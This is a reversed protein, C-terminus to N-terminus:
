RMCGNGFGVVRRGGLSIEALGGGVQISVRWYWPWVKGVGIWQLFSCRNVVNGWCCSWRYWVGMRSQGCGRQWVESVVRHGLFLGSDGSAKAQWLLGVLWKIEAAYLVIESRHGQGREVVSVM